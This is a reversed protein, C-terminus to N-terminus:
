SGPKVNPIQFKGEVDSTASYQNSQQGDRPTLAVDVKRIPQASPDQVVRGQVVFTSKETVPNQASGCAGLVAWLLLSLRWHM